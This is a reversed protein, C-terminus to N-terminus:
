KKTSCNCGDFYEQNSIDIDSSPTKEFYTKGTEERWSLLKVDNNNLDDMMGNSFEGLM